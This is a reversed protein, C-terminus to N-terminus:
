RFMVARLRQIYTGVFLFPRVRALTAPGIGKVRRLDEVVRFEGKEERHEVIREALTEGLGPISALDATTARNLDFPTLAVAGREIPLPSTGFRTLGYGRWAMLGLALVALGLLWRRAGPDHTQPPDPPTTPSAAPVGLLPLDAM